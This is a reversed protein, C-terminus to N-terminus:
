FNISLSISYNRPPMAYWAVVQYEKNTLNNIRFSLDANIGLVKRRCGFSAEFLTYADLKSQHDYFREGNYSGALTAYFSKRTYSVVSNIKHEPTYIMQRDNYEDDTSLTSRVYTYFLRGGLQSKGIPTSLDLGGEWGMTEGTKKNHPMWKGGDAPLWVIINETRSAFLASSVKGKLGGIKFSWDAGVDGSWGSESVLDPNGKAYGDEKWFLDNLNPIRYNKSINGKLQLSNLLPHEVGLSFVVPQFDSDSMEERFSLVVTGLGGNFGYRGSTFIALRNRTVNGRYGDSRALEYTYNVGANLSHYRGIRLKYEAESVWSFSNNDAQPDAMDPDSYLVKNRIFGQKVNLTGQQGYYKYNVSALINEDEQNTDNPRRSTMLTQLDKDYNQYWLGTTL